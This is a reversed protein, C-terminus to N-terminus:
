IIKIAFQPCVGACYGCLLCRSSDCVAQGASLSLAHQGCREVCKGCGECEEEILLRRQRQALRRKQAEPFRGTEFYAINADVEDYSQMGVAVADIADCRLVYDFAASVDSLLNGGGLAKMSFVGIGDAHAARIATLMDEATGDAIGIGTRNFLPHVVDLPRCYPEQRLDCVGRVGLVRHTSAGVARIVGKERMELLYDLAEMHGRLTHISEQEHLMFIDIVDRDLARRAEQLADVAMQRTYAYTKTSIVIDYKGSIQMARRLYEYNRYYQATDTFNIGKTFAYAIVDAGEELPLNAQLPGVTLSGLCLRSVRIGCNGLTRYEM